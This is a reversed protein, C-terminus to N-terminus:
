ALYRGNRGGGQGAYPLGPHWDVAAPPHFDALPLTVKCRHRSSLYAAECLALATLSTEAMAYDPMGSEIQMALHDLHVQHGSREETFSPQLHAGSPYATNQLFYGEDWPWFEVQGQTGVFRMLTGVGSKAVQVYDGTQMVIRLGSRAQVFTVAETEVQMGDRYTRTHSDCLAMVHELDPMRAAHLCFDLWHIGANLIDWGTCQIEILTLEGIDGEHIHRMVQMSTPRVLLGHPVAMPLHRGQIRALIATGAAHSHGLPKEVLIGRLPLELALQVGSEHLAPPTSICVVDTPVSRLMVAASSFTQLAPHRQRVRTLAAPDIDAVAQLEYLASAQLGALSLSGGVGAGVVAATLM